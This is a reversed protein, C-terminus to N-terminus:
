FYVKPMHNYIKLWIDGTFPPHLLQPWYPLHLRLQPPPWFALLRIHLLGGALWPPNGHGPAAVCSILHLMFAQRLNWYVYLPRDYIIIRNM